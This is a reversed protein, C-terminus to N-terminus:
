GQTLREPWILLGVKKATEWLRHDFAALTIQEGLAEQWMLASALHVSDYGQLGHDWALDGARIVLPKSIEILALSIWDNRFKKWASQAQVATIFSMRQAKATAAAM